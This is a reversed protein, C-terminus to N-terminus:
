QSVTLENERWDFGNREEEKAQQPCYLDISYIAFDSSRDFFLM